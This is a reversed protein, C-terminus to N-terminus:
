KFKDTSRFKDRAIEREQPIEQFIKPNFNAKLQFVDVDVHTLDTLFTKLCSMWYNIKGPFMKTCATHMSVLM